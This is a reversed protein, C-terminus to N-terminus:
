KCLEALEKELDCLLGWQRQHEKRADKERQEALLVARHADQVRKSQAVLQRVKEILLEQEPTVKDTM